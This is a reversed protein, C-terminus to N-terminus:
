RNRMPKGSDPRNPRVLIRSPHVTTHVRAKVEGRAADM